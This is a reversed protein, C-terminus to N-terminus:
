NLGRKRSYFRCLIDANVAVFTSVLTALIMPGVIEAPNASHANVRLAIITSPILTLSSTNIALFTCMAESANESRNLSQLEKMAKLGFPTAASGFGFLNASFNMLISGMAPHGKPISPFLLSLFPQLVKTFLGLLGSREAIKAVGLWLTLIGILGFVRTVGAAAASMTDATITSIKGTFAAAIISSIILFGFAKNIAYGGKTILSYDGYYRQPYKPLGM